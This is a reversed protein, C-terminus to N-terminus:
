MKGCPGISRALMTLIGSNGVSHRNDTPKNKRIKTRDSRAKKQSLLEGARNMRQSALVTVPQHSGTSSRSRHHLTVRSAYFGVIGLMFHTQKRAKAV